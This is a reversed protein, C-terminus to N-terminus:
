LHWRSWDSVNDSPSLSISIRYRYLVSFFTVTFIFCQQFYSFLNFDMISRAHQLFAVCFQLKEVDSSAKYLVSVGFENCKQPFNTGFIVGSHFFHLWCLHHHVLGSAELCSISSVSIRPENEYFPLLLSFTMTQDLLQLQVTDHGSDHMNWSTLPATHARTPLTPM